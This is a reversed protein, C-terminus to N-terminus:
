FSDLFERIKPLNEIDSAIEFVKEPANDIWMRHYRDLDRMYDVSILEEGSRARKAIREMCLDVPTNIYLIGHVELDFSSMLADFWMVYLRWEMESISKDEYLMKAFVNRDTLVSRETIIIRKSGDMAKKLNIYRTLFAINQFTYAWRARKDYFKELINSGDEGKINMWDSVPEDVFSVDSFMESERMHGLMTTKGSGINGDLSIVIVSM